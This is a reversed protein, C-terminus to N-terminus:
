ILVKESEDSDRCLKELHRRRGRMLLDTSAHYIDTSHYFQIGKIRQCRKSKGDELAWSQLKPAGGLASRSGQGLTPLHKKTQSWGMLCWSGPKRVGESEDSGSSWTWCPKIYRCFHCNLPTHLSQKWKSDISTKLFFRVKNRLPGYLGEHPELSNNM